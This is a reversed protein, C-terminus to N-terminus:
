EELRIEASRAHAEFGESRALIGIEPAFKKISKENFEIWSMRKQFDYVGLPSYFRSTRSTPLVHNPGGIYDGVSEPTFRGVFVSGANKIKDLIPYPKYSFIELHEPALINSIEICLSKDKCVVIMGRDDLSKVANKKLPISETRKYTEDRIKLLFEKNTGVLITKVWGPPGHEAQSLLDSAILPIDKEKDTDAIVLIESPGAIMDISVKGSVMKKAAAVYINGPGVIKDVPKLCELGYAAAFVAQAGGIRYVENINLIEILRAVESSERFTRPPSLLVIRKVGAIVAPIVTMYLSSPYLALGGPIYVAASEIPIIKQGMKNNLKDRFSYPSQIQRVHYDKIRKIATEFSKSIQPKIKKALARIEERSVKFNEPNLEFGDFKKTYYAAAKFRKKIINKKIKSVTKEIRTNEKEEQESFKLIEDAQDISKIEFLKM